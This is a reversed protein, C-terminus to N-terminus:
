LGNRKSITSTTSLTEDFGTSKLTFGIRVSNSVKQFTLEVVEVDDTTLNQSDRAIKNGSKLITITSSDPLRIKLSHTPLTSVTLMEAQKIWYTLTSSLYVANAHLREVRKTTHVQRIGLTIVMVIMTAVFSGIALAIIAEILTFGKKYIM